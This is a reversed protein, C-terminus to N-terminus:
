HDDFEKKLANETYGISVFILVSQLVCLVLTVIAATSEDTRSFWIGATATPLLSLRGMRWWLKGCVEHAYKWTEMNRMSRTTRYGAYENIKKPPHKWMWWGGGIMLLPILLDILLYVTGNMFIDEKEADSTGSAAWQQKVARADAANDAPGFYTRHIDKEFDVHYVWVLEPFDPHVIVTLMEPISDYRPAYFGNYPGEESRSRLRDGLPRKVAYFRDMHDIYTVGNLTLTGDYYVPDIGNDIRDADMKLMGTVGDETCVITELSVSPVPTRYGGIRRVLLLVFPIALLLLVRKKM